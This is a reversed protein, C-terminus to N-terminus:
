FAVLVVATAVWRRGWWLVECTKCREGTCSIIPTNKEGQKPEKVVVIVRGKTSATSVSYLRAKGDSKGAPLVSADSPERRNVARSSASPRVVGAEARASSQM